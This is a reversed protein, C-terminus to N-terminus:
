EMVIVSLDDVPIFMLESWLHLCSELLSDLPECERKVADLVYRLAHYVSDACKSDTNRCVANGNQARLMEKLYDILSEQEQKLDERRAPDNNHEAEAIQATLINLRLKLARITQPDSLPEPLLPHFCDLETASDLGLEAASGHRPPEHNLLAYLAAASISRYPHLLLEVLYQMGKSKKLSIDHEQWKLSVRGGRVTVILHQEAEAACYDYLIHM